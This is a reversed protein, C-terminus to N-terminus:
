VSRQVWKGECATIVSLAVSFDHRSASEGRKEDQDMNDPQHNTQLEATNCNKNIKRSQNFEHDQKSRYSSPAPTICTRRPADPSSLQHRLQPLRTAKNGPVLQSPCLTSIFSGFFPSQVIFAPSAAM